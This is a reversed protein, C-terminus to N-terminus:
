RKGADARRLPAHRLIFDRAREVAAPGELARVPLYHACRDSVFFLFFDGTEVAWRVGDWKVLVDSHDCTTRVGEDTLSVHFPSSVCPHQKPYSRVALWPTLVRFLALWFALVLAWPFSARVGEWNGTLMPLLVSLAAAAYLLVGSHRYWGPLKAHRTIARLLRRHEAPDWMFSASVAPTETTLTQM